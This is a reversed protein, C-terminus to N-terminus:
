EEEPGEHGTIPHVNGKIPFSSSDNIGSWVLTRTILMFKQYELIEHEFVVTPILV